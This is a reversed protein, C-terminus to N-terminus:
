EQAWGAGLSDSPRPIWRKLLGQLPDKQLLLKLPTQQPTQTDGPARPYRGHSGPPVESDAQLGRPEPCCKCSFRRAHPSAPTNSLERPTGCVLWSQCGRDRPGGDPGLHGTFNQGGRVYLPFLVVLSSTQQPHDSSWCM